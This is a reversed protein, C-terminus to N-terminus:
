SKSMNWQLPSIPPGEVMYGIPVSAESNTGSPDEVRRRRNSETQDTQTSATEASMSFGQPADPRPTGVSFESPLSFGLTEPHGATGDGTHKFKAVTAAAHGLFVNWDSESIKMGRHALLMERGLYYLPGGTRECLFDILLQKERKVGDEGRHAWFRGLQLDNHLRPLGAAIARDLRWADRVGSWPAEWGVQPSVTRRSRRAEIHALRPLLCRAMIAVVDRASQDSPGTCSSWRPHRTAAGSSSRATPAATRCIRPSRAAIASAISSNLMSALRNGEINLTASAQIRLRRDSASAADTSVRSISPTPSLCSPMWTEMLNGIGDSSPRSM